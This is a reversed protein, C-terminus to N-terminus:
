QAKLPGPVMSVVKCINRRKMKMAGLSASETIIGMKNTLFSLRWSSHSPPQAAPWRSSDKRESGCARRPGLGQLHARSNMGQRKSLGSRPEPQTESLPWSLSKPKGLPAAARRLDRTPASGAYECMRDLCMCFLLCCALLETCCAELTPTQFALPAPTCVHKYELHSSGM